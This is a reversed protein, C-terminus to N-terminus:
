GLLCLSDLTSLSILDSSILVPRVPNSSVNHIIKEGASGAYASSVVTCILGEGVGDDSVDVTVAGVTAV